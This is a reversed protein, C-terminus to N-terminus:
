KPIYTIYKKLIYELNNIASESFTKPHGVLVAINKEKFYKNIIKKFIKINYNEFILYLYKKNSINKIKNLIIKNSKKNKTRYNEISQSLGSGDGFWKKNVPFLKNIIRNICNYVSSYVQVSALPYEIFSGRGDVVCPDNSFKWFDKGSPVNNFDYYHYPLKNIYASPKVSFDYKINKDTFLKNFNEFPQISWGGARFYILNDQQSNFEKSNKDIIDFLENFSDNFLKRQELRSLSHFRYKHFSRFNWRRDDIKEADLWQPHIHLGLFSGQKIIESLQNRVAEYLLPASSKLFLLFPADVFFLAKGSHKKLKELIANTPDILSKYLDGSDNGLFMEYDFTIIVKKENRIM